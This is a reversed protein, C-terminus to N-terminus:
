ACKITSLYSWKEASQSNNGVLRGEKPTHKSITSSFFKSAVVMDLTSASRPYVFSIVDRTLSEFTGKVNVKKPHSIKDPMEFNIFILCDIFEARM